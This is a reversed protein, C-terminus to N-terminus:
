SFPYSFLWIGAAISLLDVLLVTFFIRFEAPNRPPEYKKNETRFRRLSACRTARDGVVVKSLFLYGFLYATITLCVMLFIVNVDGHYNAIGTVTVRLWVVLAGVPVALLHILGGRSSASVSSALYAIVAFGVLFISLVGFGTGTPCEPYGRVGCNGYGANWVGRAAAYVGGWILIGFLPPLTFTLVNVSGAKQKIGGADM